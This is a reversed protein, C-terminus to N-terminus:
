VLAVKMLRLHTEHLRLKYLDRSVLSSRARLDRRAASWSKEATTTLSADTALLQWPAAVAAAARASLECCPDGRLSHEACLQTWGRVDKGARVLSEDQPRIKGLCIREDDVTEVESIPRVM